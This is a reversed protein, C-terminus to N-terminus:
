KRKQIVNRLSMAPKLAFSQVLPLVRDNIFSNKVFWDDKKAKSASIGSEWRYPIMAMSCHNCFKHPASFANIIEKGSVDSYIDFFDDEPLSTKFYENFRPACWAYSCPALKGSGLMHCHTFMCNKFALEGNEHREEKMTRFFYNMPFGIEFGVGADNLILSIENLIKRTPPYNSIDFWVDFDHLIKLTEKSLKPILLGNSTIRLDTQPFYEKAIRVYQCLENNLLPEGGMLRFKKIGCFLERMRKMDRQFEDPPYFSKETVLNCFDACGKCNLNCFNVIEVELYDLVPM